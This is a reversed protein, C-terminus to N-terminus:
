VTHPLYHMKEKEFSQASQLAKFMDRANDYKVKATLVESKAECMGIIFDSYEKSGEALRLLKTEALKGQSAKEMANKISALISRKSEELILARAHVKVWQQGLAENKIVRQELRSLADTM